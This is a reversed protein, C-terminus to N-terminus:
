VLLNLVRMCWEVGDVIDQYPWLKGALLRDGENVADEACIGRLRTLEAHVEDFRAADVTGDHPVGWKDRFLSLLESVTSRNEQEHAYGAMEEESFAVPCAGTDM